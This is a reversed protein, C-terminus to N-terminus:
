CQLVLWGSCITSCLKATLLEASRWDPMFAWAQLTVATAPLLLQPLEQPASQTINGGKTWTVTPHRVGLVPQGEEALDRSSATEATRHGSM